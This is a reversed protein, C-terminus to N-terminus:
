GGMHCSVATIALYKWNNVNPHNLIGSKDSTVGSEADVIPISEYKHPLGKDATLSIM